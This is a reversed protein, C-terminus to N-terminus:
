KSEHIWDALYQYGATLKGKEAITARLLIDDEDGHIILPLVKKMLNNGFDVSAGRPLAFPLNDITMVTINSPNSFAEEEVETLPNFDYYPDEHTTTRISSPVSGNMDCTIDAIVSIRFDNRRM